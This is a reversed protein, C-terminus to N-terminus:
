LSVLRIRKKNLFIFTGMRSIKGSAVTRFKEKLTEPIEIEVEDLYLYTNDNLSKLSQNKGDESESDNYYFKPDIVLKFETSELVKIKSILQDLAFEYKTGDSLEPILETVKVKVQYKFGWEFDFNEIYEVQPDNSNLVLRKFHEYNQFSLYPELTITKYSVNQSIGLFPLTLALVFIFEKM